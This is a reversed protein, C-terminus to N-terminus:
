HLNELLEDELEQKKKKLWDNERKLASMTSFKPRSYILSIHNDIEHKMDMREKQTLTGYKKKLALLETKLRIPLGKAKQLQIAFKELEKERRDLKKSKELNLDSQEKNDYSLYKVDNELSEIYNKMNNQIFKKMFIWEKIIKNRQKISYGSSLTLSYEENLLIEKVRKDRRTEDYIIIYNESNEEIGQSMNSGVNERELEAIIDLTDRIVNKHLKELIESMTKTSMYEIENITTISNQSIKTIENM